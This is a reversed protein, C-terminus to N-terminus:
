NNKSKQKQEQFNIVSANLEFQQSKNDVSTFNLCDYLILFFFIKLVNHYNVIKKWVVPVAAYYNM